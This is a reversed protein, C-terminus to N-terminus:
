IVKCLIKNNLGDAIVKARQADSLKEWDINYELGKRDTIIFSGKLEAEIKRPQISVQGFPEDQCIKIQGESELHLLNIFKAIKDMSKDPFYQPLDEFNMKHNVQQQLIMKWPLIESPSSRKAIFFQRETERNAQERPSFPKLIPYLFDKKLLPISVPLTNAQFKPDKLIGAIEMRIKRRTRIERWYAKLREAALLKQWRSWKRLKQKYSKWDIKKELESHRKM